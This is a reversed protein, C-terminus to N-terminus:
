GSVLQFAFVGAKGALFAMGRLVHKGIQAFQDLVLIRGPGKEALGGRASGAVTIGVLALEPILARLAMVNFAPLRRLFEVVGLGTVRQGPEMDLDGALLAVLRVGRPAGSAVVVHFEAAAVVAVNVRVTALKLLGTVSTVCGATPFRHQGTIVEVMRLGFIRELALMLGDRTGGTMDLAIELLFDRESSALVTVSGIRVFALKLRPGLLAFTGLAV